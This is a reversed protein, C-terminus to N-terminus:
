SMSPFAQTLIDLPQHPLSSIHEHFLQALMHVCAADRELYEDSIWGTEFLANGLSIWVEEVANSVDVVRWEDCAAFM